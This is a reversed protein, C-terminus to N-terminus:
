PYDYNYLAQLQGSFGVRAVVVAITFGCGGGHDHLGCGGDHDHLGVFLSGWIHELLFLPGCPAPVRERFGFEQFRARKQRFM